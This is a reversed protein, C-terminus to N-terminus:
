KTIRLRSRITSAPRLGAVMERNAISPWALRSRCILNARRTKLNTEVSVSFQGLSLSVWVSGFQGLSLSVRCQPDFDLTPESLSLRALEIRSLAAAADVREIVKDM